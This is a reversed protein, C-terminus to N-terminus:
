SIGLLHVQGWVSDAPVPQFSTCDIKVEPHTSFGAHDRISSPDKVSLTKGDETHLTADTRGM